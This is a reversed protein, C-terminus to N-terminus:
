PQVYCGCGSTLSSKWCVVLIAHTILESGKRALIDFDVAVYELIVAAVVTLHSSGVIARADV